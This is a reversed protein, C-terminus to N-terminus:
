ELLVFVVSAVNMAALLGIMVSFLPICRRRMAEVGGDEMDPEPYFDRFAM